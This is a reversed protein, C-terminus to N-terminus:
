KTSIYTHTQMYRVYICVRVRLVNNEALQSGFLLFLLNYFDEKDREELLPLAKM